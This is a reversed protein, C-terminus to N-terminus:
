RPKIIIPLYLVPPTLNWAGTGVWNGAWDFVVAYVAMGNRDGVTATDLEFNWGDSPDWDEGLYNWNSNQWDSSHWFFRVLGVGSNTDRAAINLMIRGGPISSGERPYLFSATPDEHDKYLSLNYIADTGGANPHDWARVAIYYAGTRVIQYSVFSDTREFQVIDDNSSITSSGDIDILALQTDLPSGISQAKTLIGIRDGAAGQFKYYDVDGGPCIAGDLTAGYNITIAQPVTNNNDSCAPPPVTDIAFDDISWGSFQNYASDMTAFYFRVQINQGAHSALSIAPSRLWYDMPDDSLQLINTFPGGNVSIQLWRQDWDLEDGETEYKYYFRLYHVGSGPLVIIPSTLYGTNPNGTDYGNPSGVDYRWGRAGGETHNAESALIWNAGLWTSPTTEMTDVFPANVINATPQSPPNIQLNRSSSWGSAGNGNRAKVRWTYNGPTLASLHWFSQSTWPTLMVQTSGLLLELQFQTAGRTDEWVLSISAEGPYNANNVPWVLTPVGPVVTRSQVLVSTM